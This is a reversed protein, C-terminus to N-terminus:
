NNSKIFYKYLKDIETISLWNQRIELYDTMNLENVEKGDYCFTSNDQQVNWNLIERFVNIKEQLSLKKLNDKVFVCVELLNM